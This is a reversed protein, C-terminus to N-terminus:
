NFRKLTKSWKKEAKKFSKLKLLKKEDIFCNRCSSAYYDGNPHIILFKYMTIGESFTKRLIMNLDELWQNKSNLVPYGKNVNYFYLLLFDNVKNPELQEKSIIEDYDEYSLVRRHRASNNIKISNKSRKVIRDKFEKKSLVKGIDNGMSDLMIVGSKKPMFKINPLSDKYHIIWIKTSDIGFKKYYFKNLQSKKLQNLSGFFIKYRLKKYLSTSTEANTIEFLETRFKFNFKEFSIVKYNEDVYIRKKEQSYSQFISLIILVGFFIQKM